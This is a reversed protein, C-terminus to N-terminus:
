SERRRRNTNYCVDCVFEGEKRKERKMYYYMNSWSNKKLCKGCTKGKKHEIKKLFYFYFNFFIDDNEFPKKKKKKKKM